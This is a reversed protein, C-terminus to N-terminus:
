RAEKEPYRGRWLMPFRVGARQPLLDGAFEGDEGFKAECERCRVVLEVRLAARVAPVHESANHIGPQDVPERLKITAIAAHGLPCVAGLSGLPASDKEAM